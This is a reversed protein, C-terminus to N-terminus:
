STSISFNTVPFTASVGNTNCIEVGYDIQSLTSTTAIHGSNMLYTFFAKLDLTGSPYAAGGSPVFAIYSNDSSTWLDWTLGSVTISSAALSGGPTQGHNQTWIMLENSHSGFGNLWIDYAYEWDGAAASQGAYSSGVTNFSSIPPSVNTSWNIFDQHVDPYVLVATNTTSATKANVYWSAHSCVAMTQTIPTSKIGSKNWMDMALVYPSDTTYQDTNYTSATDTWVPSTCSVASNRTSTFTALGSAGTTGTANTAAMAKPAATAATTLAALAILGGFLSLARRAQGGRTRRRRTRTM